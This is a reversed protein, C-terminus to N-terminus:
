SLDTKLKNALISTEYDIPQKLQEILKRFLEPSHPELRVMNNLEIHLNLQQAPSLNEFKEKITKINETQDQLGEVINGLKLKTEPNLIKLLVSLEDICAATGRRVNDILLQETRRLKSIHEFVALKIQIANGLLSSYATKWLNTLNRLSDEMREISKLKQDILDKTQDGDIEICNHKIHTFFCKGCLVKGDDKCYGVIALGHELCRPSGEEVAELLSYNVPLFDHMYLFERRDFPCTARGVSMRSLCQKCLSHGCPLCLPFRETGDYVVLCVPCKHFGQKILESGMSDEAQLSICNLVETGSRADADIANLVLEKIQFPTQVTIQPDIQELKSPIQTTESQKQNSIASNSKKKPQRTSTISRSASSISSNSRQRMNRSKGM